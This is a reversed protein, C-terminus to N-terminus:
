GIQHDRGKYVSDLPELLCLEPEPIDFLSLQGDDKDKKESRRGFIKDQLFKVQEQLIRNEEFLNLAIIKLDELNETQKLTEKNM